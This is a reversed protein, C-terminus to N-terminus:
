KKYFERGAYLTWDQEVIRRPRSEISKEYDKFKGVIKQSGSFYKSSIFEFDHAILINVDQSQIMKADQFTPMGTSRTRFVISGCKERVPNTWWWAGGSRADFIVLDNKSVKDNKIAKCISDVFRMQGKYEEFGFFLSSTALVFGLIPILLVIPTVVQHKAYSMKGVFNPLVSGFQKILVVVLTFFIPISVRITTRSAWPEDNGIGTDYSYTVWIFIFTLLVWSLNVESHRGLYMYLFIVLGYFIFILLPSFYWTLSSTLNQNHNINNDSGFLIHNGRLFSITFLILCLPSLYKQNRKLFMLRSHQSKKIHCMIFVIIVVLSLVLWQIQTYKILDHFYQPSFERDLFIIVVYSIVIFLLIKRIFRKDIKTESFFNETGFYILWPILTTM